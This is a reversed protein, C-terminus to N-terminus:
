GEDIFSSVGNNSKLESLFRRLVNKLEYTDTEDNKAYTRITNTKQRQGDGRFTRQQKPIPRDPPHICVHDICFMDIFCCLDAIQRKTRLSSILRSPAPFVSDVVILLLVFHLHIREVGPLKMIVKPIHLWVTRYSPLYASNPFIGTKYSRILNRAPDYWRFNLIWQVKLLSLVNKCNKRLSYEQLLRM